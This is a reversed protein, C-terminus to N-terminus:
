KLFTDRNDPTMFDLSYYKKDPYPGVYNQNEITNFFHSFYGKKLENLGFAGPLRSLAMSLHIFCDIVKINMKNEVTMTMIKSGNLIVQPAIDRCILHSLLFIVDYGKMNQAIVTAGKHQESFLWNGFQDVTNAGKFIIERNGCTVCPKDLKICIECRSGCHM